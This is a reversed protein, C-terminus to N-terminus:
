DNSPVFYGPSPTEPVCSVDLTETDAVAEDIFAAALSLACGDGGWNTTESHHGYPLIVARGNPLTRVTEEAWEAPTLPDFAGAIVLTPHPTDTGNRDSSPRAPVDWAACVADSVVPWDIEAFPQDVKQTHPWSESCWVSLRMGWDLTSPASEQFWRRALPDLNREAIDNLTAPIQPIQQGSGIATLSILDAPGLAAKQGTESTFLFPEKSAAELSQLARDYLDPYASSCEADADCSQSIRRLVREINGPIESDYRVTQPMPSDLVMRDIIEPFDRAVTLAVRTGYSLGYLIVTDYGLAIRLDNIDAAIAKTHFTSLDIGQDRLTKRCDKAAQLIRDPDDQSLAINYDPCLLAPETHRTGRQGFVIFDRQGVWPYAGPYAAAALSGEGPGGSIMIVPARKPQAPDARIIAVPLRYTESQPNERDAPVLLYGRELNRGSVPFEANAELPMFRPLDTPQDEEAGMDIQKPTEARDACAILVGAAAAFGIWRLHNRFSM